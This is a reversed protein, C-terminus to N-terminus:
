MRRVSCSRGSVDREVLISLLSFFVRKRDIGEISKVYDLKKGHVKSILPSTHKQTQEPFERVSHSEFLVSILCMM